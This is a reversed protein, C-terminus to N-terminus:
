NDDDPDDDPNDNAPAAELDINAFPDLFDFSIVDGFFMAVVTAAGYSQFVMRVSDNMPTSSWSTWRLRDPSTITTSLNPFLPQTVLEAPPIDLSSFKVTPLIEQGNASWLDALWPLLSMVFRVTGRPDSWTLASFSKPPEIGTSKAIDADWRPLRGKARLLTAEVTQPQLGVILWGDCIAACPKIASTLGAFVYFPCDHRTSAIHEFEIGQEKILEFLRNLGKQLAASDKVSIAINFKGFSLLEQDTDNWSCLVNGLSDFLERWLEITEENGLQAAMAQYSKRAEDTDSLLSVYEVLIKASENWTHKVDFAQISFSRMSVPLPPLRDLSITPQDYLALFGTRPQPTIADMVTVLHRGRYGSRWAISEVGDLGLPKLLKAVTLPEPKVKPVLVMPGYRKIVRTVDCWIHSTEAIPQELEPWARQWSQLATLPGDSAAKDIVAKVGPRGFYVMLDRGEQWCAWDMKSKGQRVHLCSVTRDNHQFKDFGLIDSDAPAVPDDDDDGDEKPEDAQDRKKAKKDNKAKKKPLDKSAAAARKAKAAVALSEAVTAVIQGHDAANPIMILGYPWAEQDGDPFCVSVTFGRRFLESSLGIFQEVTLETADSNTGTKLSEWPLAVWINQIAPILGSRYYADFAATKEFAEAQAASGAYHWVIAAEKPLWKAWEADAGSALNASMLWISALVLMWVSQMRLARVRWTSRVM